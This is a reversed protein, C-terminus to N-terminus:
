YHTKTLGCQSAVNVILIAKYKKLTQFEVLNGQIDLASLKFFDSIQPKAVSEKKKSFFKELILNGM